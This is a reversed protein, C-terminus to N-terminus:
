KKITRLEVIDGPNSGLKIYKFYEDAINIITDYRTNIPKIELLKMVLTMRIEWDSLGFWEDM